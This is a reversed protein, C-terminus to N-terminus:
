KSRFQVFRGSGANIQAQTIVPHNKDKGSIVLEYHRDATDFLELLVKYPAADPDGFQFGRVRSSEIPHIATSDGLGMGKNMLLIANRVNWERRAWWRVDGPTAQVEAVMFEYNSTLAKPGLVRAMLKNQSSTNGRLIKAGNVGDAPNFVLLVSGGKIGLAAVTKM